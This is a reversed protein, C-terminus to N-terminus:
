AASRGLLGERLAQRATDLAALCPMVHRRASSCQEYADREGATSLEIVETLGLNLASGKMAHFAFALDEDPATELRFARTDLDAFIDPLLRDFLDQGVDRRLDSIRKWNIMRLGREAAGWLDTFIAGLYSRVTDAQAPINLMKGKM